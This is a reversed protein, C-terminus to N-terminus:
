TRVVVVLFLKVTQALKADNACTVLTLIIAVWHRFLLVERLAALLFGQSVCKPNTNKSPINVCMNGNDPGLLCGAEAKDRKNAEKQSM